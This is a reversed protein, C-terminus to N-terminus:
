FAGGINFHLRGFREAGQRELAFGYEIGLPGVPTRYRIGLGPSYRLDAEFSLTNGSFDGSNDLIAQGADFFAIGVFNETFSYHLETNLQISRDGGVINGEAGRPGIANPSFGRLSNRGGLFLRYSLPIVESDGFPELITFRANNAWVLRRTLPTYASQQVNLGTFSASSGLAETALYPEIWTRYGSRPNFRDDRKDYDLSGKVLSLFHTGRDEPGIVIDDPVDFLHEQFFSVGVNGSISESLPFRLSSSVGIRDYSYENTLKLSTLAFIEALLETSSGYVSPNIFTARARGADFLDRGSKFYADLGLVLGTGTGQLNRQALNSVLHLGDETSLSAGLEMSGTDREEVSVILDEEASDLTGDLPEISALQFPGIRYLNQESRLITEPDWPKGSSFELQREIVYDHTFRNGALYVEGITVQEGPSVVFNVHGADRDLEITIGANPYGLAFVEHHIREREAEIAAQDLRGGVELAPTIQLLALSPAGERAPVVNKWTIEVIRITQPENEEIEFTLMLEDTSTQELRESVRANLFGRNEYLSRIAKVDDELQESVVYGPWWRSFIFFGATRTGIVASLERDRIKRNGEFQIKTLAYQKGEVIAIEYRARDQVPELARYTVEAFFYGREQYYERIHEVFKPIANVSFPVTRQDMKLLALLEAYSATENGTFVVALPEKPEVAVLLKADGTEASFNVLELHIYAELYGERRLIALYERKLRKLADTSAIRGLALQRFQEPISQLETSFVGDITVEEITSRHGETILFIPVVQPTVYLQKIELAVEVQQFGARRYENALREVAATLQDYDLRKGHRIGAVRTLRKDSLTDNERFEVDSYSLTPALMFQLEVTGDPQDALQFDVHEFIGRQYLQAVSRYIVENELPQDVKIAVSSALEDYDLNTSHRFTIQSVTKGIFRDIHSLPVEAYVGSVFSMSLVFLLLLKGPM